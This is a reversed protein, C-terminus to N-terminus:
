LMVLTASYNINRKASSDQNIDIILLWTVM